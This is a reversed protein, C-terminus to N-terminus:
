WFLIDTANRFPSSLTRNIEEGFISLADKWLSKTYPFQM